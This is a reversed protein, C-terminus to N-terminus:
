LSWSLQYQYSAAMKVATKIIPHHFFGPYLSSRSKSAILGYILNPLFGIIIVSNSHGRCRNNIHPPWNDAMKTIPHRFFGMNSTSRSTSSLLEYLFNLLLGIFFSQTLTVVFLPYQYTHGNQGGNKNDSTPQHFCHM